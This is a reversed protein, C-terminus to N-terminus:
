LDKGLSYRYRDALITNAYHQLEDQTVDSAYFIAAFNVGRYEKEWTGGTVELIIGIAHYGQEKEDVIREGLYDAAHGIKEGNTRLLSVAVDSFSNEPEHQLVLWEGPACREIIRQRDSGDDNPYSVGVAKAVQHRLRRSRAYEESERQKAERQAQKEAERQLRKRERKAADRKKRAQEAPTRHSAPIVREVALHLERLENRDIVGDATIRKIIDRLYPIATIGTQGKHTSLWSRLEKIEALDLKGDATIRLCLELLETGATTNIEPQTLYVRTSKSLEAM